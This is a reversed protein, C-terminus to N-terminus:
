ALRGRPDLFAYSLDVLINAVVIFLSAILM